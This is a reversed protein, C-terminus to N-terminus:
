DVDDYVIQLSQESMLREYIGLKGVSGRRLVESGFKRFTNRMEKMPVVYGVWRMRSKVYHLCSYLTHLDENCFTRWRGCVEKPELIINFVENVFM